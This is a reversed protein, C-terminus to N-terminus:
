LGYENCHGKRWGRGREGRGGLSQGLHPQNLIQNRRRVVELSANGKAVRDVRPEVVDVARDARLRNVPRKEGREEGVAKVVHADVGTSRGAGRNKETSLTSSKTGSAMVARVDSDAGRSTAREWPTKASGHKVAMAM